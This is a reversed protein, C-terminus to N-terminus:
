LNNLQSKIRVLKEERKTLKKKNIELAIKNTETEKTLEDIQQKLKELKGTDSIIDENLDNIEETLELIRKKTDNVGITYYKPLYVKLFGELIENLSKYEVSDKEKKIFADYDFSAFLKMESGNENEIIQTYFNMSNVSIKDILVNEAYLIDKNQFFGNGKLKLDYNDELYETWASRLTKTEPDLDVVMCSRLKDEFIITGDQPKISQANLALTTSFLIVSLLLISKIMKMTEM